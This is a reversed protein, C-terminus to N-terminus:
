GEGFCHSLFAIRLPVLMSRPNVEFGFWQSPGMGNAKSIELRLLLSLHRGAQPDQPTLPPGIDMKLFKCYRKVTKM